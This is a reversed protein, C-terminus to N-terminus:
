KQYSQPPRVKWTSQESFLSSTSSDTGLTFYGGGDGGAKIRRILRERIHPFLGFRVMNSIKSRNLSMRSLIESGPDMSSMVAQINDNVMYSIDSEVVKLVWRTEAYDIRDNFSMEQLARQFAPKNVRRRTIGGGKDGHVQSGRVQRGQVQGVHDVRSLEEQHGHVGPVSAGGSARRVQKGQGGIESTGGRGQGHGQLGSVGEEIVQSSNDAPESAGEIVSRAQSGQFGGTGREQKDEDQEEEGSDDEEDTLGTANNQSDAAPPCFVLQAPLRRNRGDANHKHQNSKAHKLFGAKGQNNYKFIVKFMM